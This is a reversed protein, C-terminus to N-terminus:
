TNKKVWELVKSIEKSAKIEDEDSEDFRMIFARADELAYVLKKIIEKDSKM